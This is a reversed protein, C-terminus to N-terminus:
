VGGRLNETVANESPKYERGNWELNAFLIKLDVAPSSVSVPKGPIVNSYKMLLVQSRDQSWLSYYDKALSDNEVVDIAYFLDDGVIRPDIIPEISRILIAFDTKKGKLRLFNFELGSTPHLPQMAFHGETVRQFPDSYTAALGETYSHINHPSNITMEQTRKLFLNDTLGTHSPDIEVDFIAKLKNGKKDKLLYSDIHEGFNKFRSTQFNYRLVEKDEEGEGAGSYHNRVIATYLKLPKLHKVEIELSKSLPVIPDGGSKWCGATPYEPDGGANGFGVSQYDPNMREPNRLQDYVATDQGCIPDSDTKFSAKAIPLQRLVSDDHSPPSNNDPQSAGEAPDKILIDLRGTLKDLGNYQPWESFFHQVYPKTFFLKLKPDEYYLPKQWLISGYPYSRKDDVYFQLSTEAQEAKNDFNSNSLEPKLKAFIDEGERISFHGFPGETKFGFYVTLPQASSGDVSDSVTVEVRYTQNPRWIPQLTKEIAAKALSYDAEIAEQSPITQQYEAVSELVWCIEHIYTGCDNSEKDQVYGSFDGLEELKENITKRAQELSALKEKEEKCQKDSKGKLETYPYHVAELQSELSEILEMIENIQHYLPSNEGANKEALLQMQQLCDKPTVLEKRPDCGTHKYDCSRQVKEQLIGIQQKIEQLQNEYQAKANDIPEIYPKENPIKACSESKLKDRKGTLVRKRRNLVTLREKDISEKDANIVYSEAEIEALEHDIVTLQAPNTRSIGTIVVKEIALQEAQLNAEYEVPVSLELPTKTFAEQLVFSNPSVNRNLSFFEVKVERAFSFLKVHCSLAPEPLMLEVSSGQPLYLSSYINFANKFARVSGDNKRVNILVNNRKVLRDVPYQEELSDWVLCERQALNERCFLTGGTIGMREPVFKGTSNDLYSFPTQALLRIKNYEKGDKQFFGIKLENIAALSDATLMSSDFTDGALAEYPHYDVWQQTNTNYTKIQVREVKYSHKTDKYSPKPPVREISGHAGNTVGGIIDLVPTGDLAKEFQIDVFSDLPIVAEIKNSDPITSGFYQIPYSRKSGIHMASVPMKTTPVATFDSLDDTTIAAIPEGEKTTDKLWVFEVDICKEFKKILVKVYVCVEVSGHIRYPRPLTAELTTAVSVGFGVGWVKVDVQGGLALGAGIQAGQFSLNGYLDIYVLATARVPGYKKEFGFRIGAGTEIGRASLMLYAYADFLKAIQAKIPKQQTGFHVFWADRDEFYYASRVEAYLSVLRGKKAPPLAKGDKTKDREKYDAGFAFEISHGPSFAALAFFPPDGDTLGVREGMVNAKGQILIVDPLSLLFFAQISFARGEDSATAISLGAGISVPTKSGDTKPPGAMKNIHVGKAPNESLYYDTWSDDATLGAESKSAVYRYGFLGRFGFIGLGTTGLPIPTSMELMADVIWAPKKPQMRMAAGGKMKLKPLSISVDGLYEAERMSLYGKIIVAANEPSANGPITIDVGIGEIRLFADHKLGTEDDDITFFYKIGDGRAEVGAPGVGVQASFGFFKYKRLVSNSNPVKYEREDAGFTLNSVTVEIPGFSVPEGFPLPIAGGEFEINGDSYVRLKKIEFPKKFFSKLIENNDFGLRGSTEAYIENDNKAVTLGDVSVYFADKVAFSLGGEPKATIQFDGDNQFGMEINIKLPDTSTADTTPDYRQVKPLTLSGKLSSDILTNQRWELHFKKFGLKFGKRPASGKERGLTFLLEDDSNVSGGGIAELGVVGSIGGTGILLNNGVIGLTQNLPDQKFWKKPLGITADQIYVGMFEVPRGEADAEPINTTRSLDVKLGDFNITIGTEGIASFTFDFDGEQLFAFGDESSYKLSGVNYTLKSKLETAGTSGSVPISLLPEHTSKDLPILWTRPFEMAVNISQLSLEYQSSVLYNIDAINLEGLMSLLFSIFNEIFEELAQDELDRNAKLLTSFYFDMLDFSEVNDEIKDIEKEINKAAAHISKNSMYVSFYDPNTLPVGGIITKIEHLILDLQDFVEDISDTVSSYEPSGKIQILQARLIEFLNETINESTLFINIFSKFFLSVYESDIQKYLLRFVSVAINDLDPVISKLVAPDTGLEFSVPNIYRLLPRRRDFFIHHEADVDGDFFIIRVGLGPVEPLSIAKTVLTLRHFVTDGDPSSEVILNKYKIGGLAERIANNAFNQINNIQILGWLLRVDSPIKKLNVLENLGPRYKM